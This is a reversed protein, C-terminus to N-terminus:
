YTNPICKSFYELFRKFQIEKDFKEEMLRRTNRSMRQFATQDSWLRHIADALQDSDGPDVMYGTEGNMVIESVGGLNSSIVPVQMAMSELLINPLGEKYLSSLVTIDIREFIIKPERTFPFFTVNKDIGLTKIREKLMEEDPGDGVLMLHIDPLSGSALKSVADLLVPLGKRHEFSGAYGLIPSARKPLPYRKLAEKQDETTSTMLRIDTGQYIRAVSDAPIKYTDILYRRTFEAIAIVSSRLTEDPLYFERLYEPVITGTKPILHTKLKGQKICRAAFISCHFGERPPHVTCIAVDCDRLAETWIKVHHDEEKVVDDWDYTAIHASTEVCQKVVWSEHPALVTVESGHSLFNRNAETVWIQTGGHLHTDEIFCIHM